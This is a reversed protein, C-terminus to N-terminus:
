EAEVQVEARRLRHFIIHLEEEEVVWIPRDMTVVTVKTQAVLVVVEAVVLVEPAQPHGVEVVVALM